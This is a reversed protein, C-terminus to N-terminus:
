RAISRTLSHAVLVLLVVLLYLSSYNVPLRSLHELVAFCYSNKEYFYKSQTYCIDSSTKLLFRFYM